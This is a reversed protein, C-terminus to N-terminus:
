MVECSWYVVYKAAELTPSFRVAQQYSESTTDDREEESYQIIEPSGGSVFEWQSTSSNWRLVDGDSPSGSIDTHDASSHISHGRAHHPASDGLDTHEQESLFDPDKGQQEDIKTRPM